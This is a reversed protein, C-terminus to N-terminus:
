LEIGGRLLAKIADEANCGAQALKHFSEMLRDIGKEGLCRYLQDVFIQVGLWEALGNSVYNM